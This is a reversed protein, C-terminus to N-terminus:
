QSIDCADIKEPVFLPLKQVKDLLPQFEEDELDIFYYAWRGQRVVNIIGADKLIKLHRSLRSQILGLSHEFECVCCKGHVLLFKLILVRTEDNFASIVKLFDNM